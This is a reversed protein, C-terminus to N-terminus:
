WSNDYKQPVFGNCRAPLLLCTKGTFVGLPMTVEFLTVSGEHREISNVESVTGDEFTVRIRGFENLCDVQYVDIRPSAM